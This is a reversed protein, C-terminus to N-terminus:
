SHTLNRRHHRHRHPGCSLRPRRHPGHHRARACGPRRAGVLAPLVIAPETTASPTSVVTSKAPAVALSAAALAYYYSVVVYPCHWGPPIPEGPPVCPITQSSHTTELVSLCLLQFPSGNLAVAPLDFTADGIDTGADSWVRTVQSGLDPLQRETDSCGEASNPGVTAYATWACDVYPAPPPWDEPEESSLPKEEPPQPEEPPEPSPHECGTWEVSGAISGQSWDPNAEARTITGSSASAAPVAVAATALVLGAVAGKWIYKRARGM